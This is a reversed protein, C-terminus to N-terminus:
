IWESKQDTRICRLAEVQMLRCLVPFQSHSELGRVTNEPTKNNLYM